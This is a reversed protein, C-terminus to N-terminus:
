SRVLLDKVVDREALLEDGRRAARVPPGEVMRLAELEQERMVGSLAMERPGRTEECM